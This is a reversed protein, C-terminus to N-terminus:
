SLGRKIVSPRDCEKHNDHEKEVCDVMFIRRPDCQEASKEGDCECVRVTYLFRESITDFPVRQKNKAPGKQINSTKAAM